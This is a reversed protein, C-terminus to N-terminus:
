SFFHILGTLIKRRIFFAGTEPRKASLEEQNNEESRTEEKGGTEEESRTKEERCTEESYAYSM